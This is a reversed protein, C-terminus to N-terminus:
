FTIGAFVAAAVIAGPVFLREGDSGKTGNTPAPAISSAGTGFNTANATATAATGTSNLADSPAGTFSADSPVPATSLNAPVVTEEPALTINGAAATANAVASADLSVSTSAGEDFGADSSAADGGDSPSASESASADQAIAFGAAALVLATYLSTRM